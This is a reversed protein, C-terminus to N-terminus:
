RATRRADGALFEGDPGGRARADGGALAPDVYATYGPADIQVYCCGADVLGEIMAREIAVVDAPLITSVRTSAARPRTTSASASRDPGILTVKAPKKAVRGVFAYEELPVNRALRLRAVAPRRHTVPAGAQTLDPMDFRQMPKGGAVRRVHAKHTLRVADYGEVAAGFSDQFNLRRMEGDTVVDLGVGEQLRVAERM